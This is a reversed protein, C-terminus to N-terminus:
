SEPPALEVRGDRTALEQLLHVQLEAGLRFFGHVTMIRHNPNSRYSDAVIQGAKAAFVGIIDEPPIHGQLAPTRQDVIYVWGEGLRQAEATLSSLGPGHKAIVQHLFDVFFRNVALGEPAIASIQEVPQLLVGIIAEPTLGRDFASQATGCIVYDKVGDPLEVRCVCMPLTEAM